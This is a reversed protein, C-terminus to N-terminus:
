RRGNARRRHSGPGLGHGSAMTTPEVRITLEPSAFGARGSAITTTPAVAVALEAAISPPSGPGLGDNDARGHGCSPAAPSSAM